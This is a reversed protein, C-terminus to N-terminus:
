PIVKTGSSKTIYNERLDIQFISILVTTYIVSIDTFLNSIFLPFESNKHSHRQQRQQIFYYTSYINANLLIDCDFCVVYM